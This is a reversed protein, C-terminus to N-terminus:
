HAAPAPSRKRRVDRTTTGDRWVCEMSVSKRVEPVGFQNAHIESAALSVAAAGLKDFRHDVGAMGDRQNYNLRAFGCEAPVKVGGARMWDHIEPYSLVADPRHAEFWRMFTAANWDDTVMPPVAEEEPDARQCALLSGLWLNNVRTNDSESVFLGIRRYGRDILARWAVQVVQFQDALVRHLRPAVLSHGCSVAAFHQWPLEEIAGIERLPALVVGQIARSHLIGGLRKATMGPENLCFEELHYGLREAKEAAGRYMESIMFNDRWGGVKGHSSLWAIVDQESARRGRMRAMATSIAPDPVYGMAEAKAIVAARTAESVGREGSLARSISMKTLGMAQAIDTLTVRHDPNM